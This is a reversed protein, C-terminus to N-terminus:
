PVPSGLVAGWNWEPDEAREWSGAVVKLSLGAQVSWGRERKGASKDVGTPIECGNGMKYGWNMGYDM